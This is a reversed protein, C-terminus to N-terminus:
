RKKKIRLEPWMSEFSPSKHTSGEREDFDSMMYSSESIWKPTKKKAM